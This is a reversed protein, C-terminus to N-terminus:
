KQHGFRTFTFICSFLEAEARYRRSRKGKNTNLTSFLEVGDSSLLFFVLRASRSM